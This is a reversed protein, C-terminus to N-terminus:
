TNGKGRHIGLVMYQYSKKGVAKSTLAPKNMFYFNIYIQTQKQLSNRVNTWKDIM